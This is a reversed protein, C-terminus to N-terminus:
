TIIAQLQIIIDKSKLFNSAFNHIELMKVLHVLGLRKAELPVGPHHKTLRHMDSISYNLNIAKYKVNM